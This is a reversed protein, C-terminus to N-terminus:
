AIYMINDHIHASIRTNSQTILENALINANEELIRVKIINETDFGQEELIANHKKILHFVLGTFDESFRIDLKCFPYLEQFICNNLVEISASYYAKGLPGVGLKVGGYYRIVVLLVNTLSFHEIANLIRIGATGSPESDDSYKITNDSLKYAYCYHTADYFEKRIKQLLTTADDKEEIRYARSIFQSGKEKFQTEKSNKITKIFNM